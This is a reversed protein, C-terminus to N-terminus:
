HRCARKMLDPELIVIALLCGLFLSADFNKAVQIRLREGKRTMSAVRLNKSDASLPYVQMSLSSVDATITACPRQMHYLVMGRGDSIDIKGFYAGNGEMITLMRRDGSGARLLLDPDKGSGGVALIGGAALSAKLGETHGECSISFAVMSPDLVERLNVSFRAEQHGPSSDSLWPISVVQCIPVLCIARCKANKM